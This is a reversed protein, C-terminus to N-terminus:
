SSSVQSIESVTDDEAKEVEDLFTLISRFFSFLDFETCLVCALCVAMYGPHWLSKKCPKMDRNNGARFRLIESTNGGAGRSLFRQHGPYCGYVKFQLIMKSLHVCQLHRCSDSQLYKKTFAVLLIPM